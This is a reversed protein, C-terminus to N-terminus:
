GARRLVRGAESTQRRVEPGQVGLLSGLRVRHAAHDWELIEAPVPPGDRRRDLQARWRPTAWQSLARPAGPAGGASWRTLAPGLGASQHPRALGLFVGRQAAALHVRRAATLGIEGLTQALIAAAGAKASEEAAWLAALDDPADIVLVRRPDIGIRKLGPGYPRGFDLGGRPQAIWITAGPRDRAAMAVLACLFGM